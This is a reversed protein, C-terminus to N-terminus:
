IKISKLCIKSSLKLSVTGTFRTSMEFPQQYGTALYCKDGSLIGIENQTCTTSLFYTHKNHKYEISIICYITYVQQWTVNIVQYFELRMRLVRLQSFIHVHIHIINTNLPFLLIFQKSTINKTWTWIRWVIMYRSCTCHIYDATIFSKCALLVSSVSLWLCISICLPGSATTSRARAWCSAWVRYWAPTLFNPVSSDAKRETRDM